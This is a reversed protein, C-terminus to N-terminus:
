EELIIRLQRHIARWRWFVFITVLFVVLFVVAHTLIAFVMFISIDMLFTISLLFKFTENTRIYFSFRRNLHIHQEAIKDHIQIRSIVCFINLIGLVAFLIAIIDPYLTFSFLFTQIDQSPYIQAGVILSHLGMLCFGAFLSFFVTYLRADRREDQLFAEKQSDSWEHYKNTINLEEM